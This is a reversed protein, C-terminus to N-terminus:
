SADMPVWFGGRPWYWQSSWSLSMPVFCCGRCSDTVWSPLPSSPNTSGGNAKLGLLLLDETPSFASHSPHSSCRHGLALLAAGELLWAQPRCRRPCWRPRLRHLEWILSRKEASLCAPLEPECRSAVPAGEGCHWPPCTQCPLAMLGRTCVHTSTCRHQEQRVGGPCLSNTKIRESCCM